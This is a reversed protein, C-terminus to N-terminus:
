PSQIILLVKFDKECIWHIGSEKNGMEFGEEEAIGASEYTGISSNRGLRCPM